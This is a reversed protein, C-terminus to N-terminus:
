PAPIQPTPSLAQLNQQIFQVIEAPLVPDGPAVEQWVADFTEIKAGAKIGDLWEQFLTQRKQECASDAIPRDEHGLARIIHWGFQTQVPESTQGVELSFAAEEFEPVMAGRSFWGLDGGKTSNSTDTSYTQAMLSWDEGDDLRKKIDKALTEDDVLIHLAWVQEDTCAPDGIVEKSVKERLLQSEIVHRLASEPISQDAFSKITEDYNQKYADATYPTATPTITPISTATPETTPVAPTPTETPVATQTPVVTAMLTPTITPTATPPILTLQLPSLTSTSIPPQTMTPTPTGDPYYGFAAEFGKNIEEDTVTIGLRKAEQRILRDEIMRNVTDQGVTTPSLQLQIQQLQSIFSSGGAQTGFMQAFQYANQANRILSYRSYRAQDVFDQATIKEGNVTAVTRLQKLVTQNLFGYGILLLVAALVVITGIQIYRIQRQERQMRALHKKTATSQKPTNQEM